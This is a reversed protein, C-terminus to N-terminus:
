VHKMVEIMVKPQTEDDTSVQLQSRGQPIAFFRNTTFDSSAYASGIRVNGKTYKAIEIEKPNTNIVLKQNATVSTNIKGTKVISGNVLLRYSPNTAPGMITLKFYSPLDVNLDFANLTGSGYQYSYTYAYQKNEGTDEDEATQTVIREYWYSTLNFTIPCVLHNNDPKIESKDISVICKAYFWTNIPKYALVLGGVQVFSLFYAYEQYTRFVMEGSPTQRIENEDIALYTMGMRQIDAEIGWGLGQPDHLLAEPRTMDYEAGNGNILKFQRVRAIM